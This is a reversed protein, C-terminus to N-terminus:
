RAESGTAIQGDRANPRLDLATVTTYEVLQAVLDATEAEEQEPRIFGALVCLRLFILHQRVADTACYRDIAQQEGALFLDLVDGGDIDKGGGLINLAACAESLSPVAKGFGGLEHMLDIHYDSYRAHYDIGEWPKNPRRCFEPQVLHHVLARQILIPLDASESNYGVLQPQMKGVGELFANIRDRETAREVVKLTTEVSGDRKQLRRVTGISVVQCLIPKLFPRPNKEADFDKHARYMWDIVDRDTYFKYSGPDALPSVDFDAPPLDYLRRGSEVDPVWECDFTLVDRALLKIM